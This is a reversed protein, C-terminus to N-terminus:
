HSGHAPGELDGLLARLRQRAEFLRSKVTKEEIQLMQAMEQYSLEQFHRLTIVVRDNPSLMLLARHLRRSRQGASAQWEPGSSDAAPLDVDEDLESEHARHRQLNLAENVAIRYIWSFFKYRPDYDDIREAAKLFVTQAVDSADEGRRLIWYAAQYVPRQYRVVLETFADQEGAQYRRVLARDEDANWTCAGVSFTPERM